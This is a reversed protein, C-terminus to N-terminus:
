AIYITSRRESTEALVRSYNEIGSCFGVEELMEMDYNTRQAIRQAEILMDHEKFYAIREDLEEKIEEIADRM